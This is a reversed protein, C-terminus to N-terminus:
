SSRRQNEHEDGQDTNDTQLKLQDDIYQQHLLYVDISSSHLWGAVHTLHSVKNEM